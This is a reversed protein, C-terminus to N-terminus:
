GLAAAVDTGAFDQGKYLLPWGRSRSLAYAFCDGVNLGAPHRGRGFRLLAERAHMAQDIDVDVITVRLQSLTRHVLDPAYRFRAGCLVAYLEIQNVVSMVVDPASRLRDLYVQFDPEANLIAVFVSSDLVVPQTGDMM